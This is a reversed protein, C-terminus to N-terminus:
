EPPCRYAYLRVRVESRLQELPYEILVRERQEAVVRIFLRWASSSIIRVVRNIGALVLIDRNIGALVLIYHLLNQNDVSLAAFDARRKYVRQSDAVGRSVADLQDRDARVRRRGLIHQAARGVRGRGALIRHNDVARSASTM